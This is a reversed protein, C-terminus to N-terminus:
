VGTEVIVNVGDPIVTVRANEGQWARAMAVAAELTPAYHMKMEQIIRALQPEAVFIVRHKMLIRALVQAEWQDPLTQPQPRAMIEAYLQAPSRCDRLAAYFDESGSGDKCAALMILVAGPKASAEAATLGKVSQYINQDLPAGGNTSIVIDAPAAKVRCYGGLFRCGARHALEFDGAFAAVTRKNNDIVVNVIYALKALRAGAIMDTQLPNGELIGTRAQASGIFASCHNGLVTAQDCIGPLVSKPGGSFGAFFHPEIFGEAILLGTELAARNVVLPAGSPLVGVRCNAAADRSDHIVIREKAVIDAGLKVALEHAQTLRHFGTAVLLTIDIHPNGQRLGALMLPIIDRSPVPRTHDSIIIVASKKGAALQHLPASGIPQAMAAAVIQQGGGTGSLEEVRSLLLAANGAEYPIHTNGYPLNVTTMTAGKAM